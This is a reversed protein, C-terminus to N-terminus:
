GPGNEILRMTPPLIRPTVGVSSAFALADARHIAAGVILPSIRSQSQGMRIQPLGVRQIKFKM